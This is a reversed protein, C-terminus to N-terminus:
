EPKKNINLNVIYNVFTKMEEPLYECLEDPISNKKMKYIQYYKEKRTKVKINQWPLEGKIFYIM